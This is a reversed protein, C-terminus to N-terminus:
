AASRHFSERRVRNQHRGWAAVSQVKERALLPFILHPVGTEYALAEAENLALQLLREHKFTNERFESLLASKINQLRALFKRCAGKCTAVLSPPNSFGFSEFSHNMNM